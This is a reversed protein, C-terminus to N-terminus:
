IYIKEWIKLNDYDKYKIISPIKNERLIISNHSLKNGNKIIVWSINDIIDYFNFDLNESILVQNNKNKDINKIDCIIWKIKWKYIYNDENKSKIINWKIFFITSSLNYNAKEITFNDWKYEKKYKELYFFSKNKLKEIKLFLSTIFNTKYDFNLKM